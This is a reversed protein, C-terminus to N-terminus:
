VEDVFVGARGEDVEEVSGWAYRVRVRGPMSEGTEEDEWPPCDVGVFTVHHDYDVLLEDGECVEEGSTKTVRHKQTSM